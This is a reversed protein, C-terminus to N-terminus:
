FDCFRQFGWRKLREMVGINGDVEEMEEVVSEAADDDGEMQKKIAQKMENLVNVCYRGFTGDEAIDELQAHHIKAKRYIEPVCEDKINNNATIYYISIASFACLHAFWANKYRDGNSLKDTITLTAHCADMLKKVCRLTRDIPYAALFDDTKKLTSSNFHVFPRYLFILTQNYALMMTTKQARFITLIEPTDADLLIAAKQRWAELIVKHGNVLDLHTERKPPRVGYFDALIASTIFSLEAHLRTATLFSLRDKQLTWVNTDTLQADIVLKPFDEDADIQRLYQPRNLSGSLIKDLMFAAWFARKQCEVDIMSYVGELNHKRHLHLKFILSVVEGFISWCKSMRGRALLFFCQLIRAQISELQPEGTESLLQETAYQFWRMGVTSNPEEEHGDMYSEAEAIIMFIVAKRRRSENLSGSVNQSLIEKLWKEVTPRHLLVISTAIKEFYSCLMKEVVEQPPFSTFAEYQQTAPDGANFINPSPGASSASDKTPSIMLDKDDVSRKKSARRTKRSAAVTAPINDARKPSTSDTSPACMDGARRSSSETGHDVRIVDGASASSGDSDFNYNVKKAVRCARKPRSPGSHANRDSSSNVRRKSKSSTM